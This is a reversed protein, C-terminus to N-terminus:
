GEIIFRAREFLEDFTVVEVDSSSRRFLEFSEVKEGNIGNDTRFEQLNGIVLVQRPRTTSFDLGTPTGDDETHSEVQDKLQRIAKRVTKQLQAVGGVLEKSGMWVDPERYRSAALLPSDHRKIECFLLTSIVARSRMLADIRKGGGDWINAGTTIRELKGDAISDHWVLSLGYGFIWAASEFFDQWVAEPGKELRDQEASFFAADHLLQEFREVQSKRGDILAIERDTLTSELVRQVLAVADDRDRLSMAELLQEDSQEVVRLVDSGSDIDEFGIIFKMLKMLNEHGDSTDVSSKITRAAPDTEIAELSKGTRTDRKWFRFRPTYRDGSTVLTVETYLDVQPKRALLFRKILGRRSRDYFYNFHEGSRHIELDTLSHTALDFTEADRLQRAWDGFGAQAM